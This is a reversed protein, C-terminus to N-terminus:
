NMGHYENLSREYADNGPYIRLVFKDHQRDGSSDHDVAFLYVENEWGSTINVLESVKANQKDPFAEAIYSQLKGQMDETM